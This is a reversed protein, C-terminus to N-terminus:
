DTEGVSKKRKEGNLPSKEVTWEQMQHFFSPQVVKFSDMSRWQIGYDSEIPTAVKRDKKRLSLNRIGYM